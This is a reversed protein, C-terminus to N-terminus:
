FNFSIASTFLGISLEHFHQSSQNLGFNFRYRSYLTFTEYFKFLGFSIEPSIGNFGNFDNTFNIGPSVYKIVDTQFIHKYGARVFNKNTSNFVYSYELAVYGTPYNYGSNYFSVLPIEKSLSFNTENESFVMTPSPILYMIGGFCLDLLNSKNTIELNYSSPLSLDFSESTSIEMNRDEVIIKFALSSSDYKLKELPLEFKHEDTFINSVVIEENGDFKIKSKVSDSTFFTIKVTFPLEPAVYSDIIFIDVKDQAFNTSVFVLFILAVKNIM